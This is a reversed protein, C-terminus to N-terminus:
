GSTCSRNLLSAASAVGPVGSSNAAKMMRSTGFHCAIALSAPTFLSYHEPLQVSGDTLGVHEASRCQRSYHNPESGSGDRGAHRLRLGIRASRELEDYRDQRAPRHIDHSPENRLM